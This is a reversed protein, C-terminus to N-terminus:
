FVFFFPRHPMYAVLLARALPWIEANSTMGAVSLSPVRCAPQMCVHCSPRCWLDGDDCIEDGDIVVSGSCDLRLLLLLPHVM